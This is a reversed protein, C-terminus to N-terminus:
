TKYVTCYVFQLISLKLAPFSNWFRSVAPNLIGFFFIIWIRLMAGLYFLKIEPRFLSEAYFKCKRLSKLYEDKIWRKISKEKTIKLMSKVLSKLLIFIHILSINFNKASNAPILIIKKESFRVKQYKSRWPILKPSFCSWLKSSQIKLFPPSELVTYM